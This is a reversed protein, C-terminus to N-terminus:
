IAVLAWNAQLVAFLDGDGTLYTEKVTLRKVFAADITGELDRKWVYRLVNKIAMFSLLLSYLSEELADLEINVVGVKKDHL